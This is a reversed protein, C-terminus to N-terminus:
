VSDIRFSWVSKILGRCVDSVEGVFVLGLKAVIRSGMLGSAMSFPYTFFDSMGSPASTLFTHLEEEIINLSEFEWIDNM